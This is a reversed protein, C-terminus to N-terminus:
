ISASTHSNPSHLNVPWHPSGSNKSFVGGPQAHSLMGQLCQGGEGAASTACDEQHGSPLGLVGDRNFVSKMLNIVVGLDSLTEVVIMLDRRLTAKEQTMILINDFYILLGIGRKRMAAALPHLVKM